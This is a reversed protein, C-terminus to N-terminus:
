LSKSAEKTRPLQRVATEEHIKAGSKNDLTIIRMAYEVALIEFAAKGEGKFRLTQKNSDLRLNENVNVYSNPCMKNIFSLSPYINFKTGGVSAEGSVDGDITFTAEPIKVKYLEVELRKKQGPEVLITQPPITISTEDMKVTEETKSFDTEFSFEINITTSAGGVFPIEASVTTSSGIKAGAKFGYTTSSSLTTGTTRKIELSKFEMPTSTDNKFEGGVIVLPEVNKSSLPPLQYNLKQNSIQVRSNSYEPSVIVEHYRVKDYAETISSCSPPMGMMDWMKCMVHVPFGMYLYQDLDFITSSM